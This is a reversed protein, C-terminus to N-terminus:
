GCTNGVNRYIYSNHCFKSRKSRVRMGKSMGNPGNMVVGSTSDARPKDRGGHDSGSRAVMKRPNGVAEGNIGVMDTRRGEMAATTIKNGEEKVTPTREM